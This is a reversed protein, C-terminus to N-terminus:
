ATRKWVYVTLYPPMNNHSEGGGVSAHEHSADVEITHNGFSSGASPGALSNSESTEEIIGTATATSWSLTTYSGTLTESGHTHSPIEDTGLTHTEAGGTEGAEHEEGACLLFTDEIQEWTGGFLTSPNASNVSMYVSGVPYIVNVIDSVDAQIDSITESEIPSEVIIKKNDAASLKIDGDKAIEIKATGSDITVKDNTIEM